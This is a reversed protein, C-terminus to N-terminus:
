KFYSLLSWEPHFIKFISLVFLILSGLFCALNAPKKKPNFIGDIGLVFLLLAALVLGFVSAVYQVMFEKTMM